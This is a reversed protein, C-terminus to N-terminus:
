AHIPTLMERSRALLPLLGVEGEAARFHRHLGDHVCTLLGAFAFNHKRYKPKNRRRFTEQVTNFLGGSILPPHLGKYEISQWVFQGLYFRNKLMMELHDVSGSGLENLVAKRLTSLPAVFLYVVTMWMWTRSKM